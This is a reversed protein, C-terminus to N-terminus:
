RRQGQLQDTCLSIRRASSFQACIEEGHAVSASFCITKVPGGFHKTTKDIGSPLSTVSSRDCRINLDAEAWEGDFKVAAGKM